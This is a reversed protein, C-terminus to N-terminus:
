SSLQENRTENTGQRANMHFGYPINTQKNKYFFCNGGNYFLLGWLIGLTHGFYALMIDCTHLLYGLMMNVM